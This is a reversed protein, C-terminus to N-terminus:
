FLRLYFLILANDSLLLSRQDGGQGQPLSPIPERNITIQLDSSMGYIQGNDGCKYGSSDNRSGSINFLLCNDHHFSQHPICRRKGEQHQEYSEPAARMKEIMCMNDVSLDNDM